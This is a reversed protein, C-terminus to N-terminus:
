KKAKKEKELILACIADADEQSLTNPQPKPYHPEQESYWFGEKTTKHSTM